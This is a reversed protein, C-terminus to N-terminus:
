FFGPAAYTTQSGTESGLDIRPAAYAKCKGTEDGRLSLMLWRAERNVKCQTQGSYDEAGEDYFGWIRDQVGPLKCCSETM